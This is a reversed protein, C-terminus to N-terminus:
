EEKDDKGDDKKKDDKEGDKKGFDFPFKMKMKGLKDQLKKVEPSMKESEESSKDDGGSKGNEGEALRSKDFFGIQGIMKGLLVHAQRHTERLPNNQDKPIM